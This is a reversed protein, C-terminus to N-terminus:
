DKRRIATWVKIFDSTERVDHVRFMRIGGDLSSGVAALGGWIRDGPERGTVAGLFSKRSHGILVPFGLTHFDAARDLIELNDRLRKGFGIGPDVIIKKRDVGRSVIDGTRRDLWSIIEGVPDEYSPADQMTGPTGQMHMVVIAAGTELAVDVIAPDHSAGSIDNIMQAGAKMAASAVRAKRTDISLPIDIKGSLKEIVPMVRRLEEAADPERAGPRTSEGGIDIIGAGEGAMQLARDLAREPDLWVGGDSFSDPTVNLIGMIVPGRSLDISGSPLSISSPPSSIRALLLEVDRGLDELGFPQGKLKEPLRSLRGRDSILHVTSREPGGRIVDRHVAADAGLSLMQQKLINAAPAGVDDIRIVISGTKMAMIAIGEASVGARELMRELGQRGSEIIVRTPYRM